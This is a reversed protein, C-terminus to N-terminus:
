VKGIVKELDSSIVPDDLYIRLADRFARREPAFAFSAESDADLQGRMFDLWRLGSDTTAAVDITLTRFKGYPVIFESAKAFEPSTM